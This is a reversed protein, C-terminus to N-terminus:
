KYQLSRNASEVIKEQSHSGSEINSVKPSPTGKLASQAEPLTAKCPGTPTGQIYVSGPLAEEMGMCTFTASKIM